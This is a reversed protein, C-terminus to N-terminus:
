RKLKAFIMRGAATQLVSTVEVGVQEGKRDRGNEVVVMTGDDLFGVGQHQEKGEKIISVAMDEGPLAVAKVANGLENINLVEIGQLKAVRNLNYDNTVIKAGIRRALTVLKADVDPDDVKHEQIELDPTASRLQGLVDLGRKGRARRVADGSDALLQLEALVFRPVILLGDLFGSRVIDVIRGDIIVSSDLLKRPAAASANVTRQRHGVRFGVYAFLAVSPGWLIYFPEPGFRKLLGLDEYAGRVTYTLILGILLGVAGSIVEYATLGSVASEMAAGFRDIARAVPTALIYGVLAGVGLGVLALYDDSQPTFKAYLQMVLWGVYGGLIAITFRALGTV